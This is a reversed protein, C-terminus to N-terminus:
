TDRAEEYPTTKPTPQPSPVLIPKFAPAFSRKAKAPIGQYLQKTAEMLFVGSLRSWFREGGNEMWNASLISRREIPPTHLASVWGVPSFMAERMLRTLQGRSFPRGYGFPTNELRAWLGTRNPVIVLLRGGPSLVRWIEALLERPNDTMELSHVLLVRDVAADPLPLMDDAVLSTVSPGDSPWRFVGQSAPMFVLIRDAEGILPRMFPTTYGLGLIRDGAVKPWVHHIKARLKLRTQRGLRSNYFDKLDIADLYM